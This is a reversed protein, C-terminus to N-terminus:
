RAFRLVSSCRRGPSRTATDSMPSKWPLATRQAPGPPRKGDPLDHAKELFPPGLAVVLLDGLYGVGELGGREGSPGSRGVFQHRSRQEVVYPVQQLQGLSPGALPGVPVVLPPARGVEGSQERGGDRTGDREM